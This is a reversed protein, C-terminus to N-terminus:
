DLRDRFYLRYLQCSPTVEDGHLTVLGMSYLKYACISELRVRDSSSVVTKFATALEPHEQLMVLHSRLHSAYIGIETPAEQLLQDLNVEQRYLYYLALRVLSPNGGVLSQLQKLQQIGGSASAWKLRHREALNQIQELTFEPLHVPIGVNFPSQNLDLPIYIETSHVVILRLKRWIELNNAEEHWFRLLPLFDQAVEPYEFIRNVEDLAIVLPSEVQSLLYGQLYTTCSVKSGLDEDWYQDLMSPLGLKRTLNACFWRLFKDLSMFVAHDAEEFNLSIARCGKSTAHALVRVMLSTKGWQRPARIRLLTGPKLIEQYALTEVPPRELYFASNLPVQGQPFEPELEPSHPTLDIQPTSPKPNHTEIQQQVRRLVSRFNNKTVKEGVAQSLIKWLQFGVYRIYDPDYSSNDAIQQYTQGLYCQRFVLEQVDSLHEPELLKDLIALAEEINMALTM